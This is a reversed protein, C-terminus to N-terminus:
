SVITGSASAGTNVGDLGGSNLTTGIGIGGPQESLIGGNVTRAVIPAGIGM